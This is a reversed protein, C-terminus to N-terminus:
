MSFPESSMWDVTNQCVTSFWHRSKALCYALDHDDPLYVPETQQVFWFTFLYFGGYMDIM